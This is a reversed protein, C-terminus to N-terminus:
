SGLHRCLWSTGLLGVCISLNRLSDYQSLSRTIIHVGLTLGLFRVRPTNKFLMVSEELWIVKVLGEDYVIIISNDSLPSSSTLDNAIVLLDNGVTLRFIPLACTQVGTVNRDRIGDEAQF